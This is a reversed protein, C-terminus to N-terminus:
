YPESGWRDIFELWAAQGPQIQHLKLQLAEQLRMAALTKQTKAAAQLLKAELNNSFEKLRNETQEVVENWQLEIHEFNIANLCSMTLLFLLGSQLYIFVRVVVM